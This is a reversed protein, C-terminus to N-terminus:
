VMRKKLFETVFLLVIIFVFSVLIFGNFKETPLSYFVDMIVAFLLAEYYRSFYFIAAATLALTVWWPSSSLSALIVFYSATRLWNKKM